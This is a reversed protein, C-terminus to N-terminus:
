AADREADTTAAVEAEAEAEAPAEAGPPPGTNVVVEAEYGQEEAKRAANTAAKLALDLHSYPGFSKGNLGVMWVDGLSDVSYTVKPM